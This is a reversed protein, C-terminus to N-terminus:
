ISYVHHIQVFSSSRREEGREISINNYKGFEYVYDREYNPHDSTALLVNGDRAGQIYFVIRLIYGDPQSNKIDSIKVFHRYDYDSISYYGCKTVLVLGLFFLSFSVLLFFYIILLFLILLSINQTQILQNATNKHLPFYAM